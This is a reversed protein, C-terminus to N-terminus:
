DAGSTSRRQALHTLLHKKLDPMNKPTAPCKHCKLPTNLYVASDESKLKKLEGNVHLQNCIDISHLFFPTTFSNWHYKTKLCPSNFDTSIVHLHLRQMSPVAHYGIYFESEKHEKTLDDAVKAMHLLLDENERKVHWLSPINVKPLVLFHFQAKPYKDKIVVVKDDEKVKLDPDEMSVLLGTAWHHKKPTTADTSTLKPKRKM